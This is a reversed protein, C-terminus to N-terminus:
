AGSDVVQHRGVQLSKKVNICANKYSEAMMVRTNHM